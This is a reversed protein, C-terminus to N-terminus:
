NNQGLHFMFGLNVGLKSRSYPNEGDLWLFSYQAAGFVDVRGIPYTYRVLVLPNLFEQITFVENRTFLIKSINDTNAFVYEDRGAYPPRSLLGVLPVDLEVEVHKGWSKRVFVGLSYGSMWSGNEYGDYDLINLRGNIFAGAYFASQDNQNISRGLKLDLNLELYYSTFLNNYDINGADGKLNFSWFSRGKNQEYGVGVQYLLGGFRLDSFVEDVLAVQLAGGHVVLKKSDSQASLNVSISCILTCLLLVWFRFENNKNM